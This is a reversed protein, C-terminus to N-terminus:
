NTAFLEAFNMAIDTATTAANGTIALLWSSSETLTLATPVV